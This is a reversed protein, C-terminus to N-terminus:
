SGAPTRGSSRRSTPARTSRCPSARPIPSRDADHPRHNRSRADLLARRRGQRSQRQPLDRDDMEYRAPPRDCDSRTPTSSRTTASRISTTRARSVCSCRSRPQCRRRSRCSAPETILARPCGRSSAASAPWRRRAPGARRRAQPAPPVASAAAHELSANAAREHGRRHRQGRARDRDRARGRPRRDARRRQRLPGGPHKATASEVVAALAASVEPRRSQVDPLLERVHKMAVAVQNDGKFPVEGTLM